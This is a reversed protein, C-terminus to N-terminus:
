RQREANKSHCAQTHSKKQKDYKTDNLKKSIYNKMLNPLNETLVEGLLKGIEIEREEGEPVGMKYINTHKM